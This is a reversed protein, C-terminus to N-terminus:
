LAEQVCGLCRELQMIDLMSPYNYRFWFEGARKICQHLEAMTRAAYCTGFRELRMKTCDHVASAGCRALLIAIVAHVKTHSVLLYLTNGQLGLLFVHQDDNKIHALLLRPKCHLSGAAGDYYIM